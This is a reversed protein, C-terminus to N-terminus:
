QKFILSAEWYYNKGYFRRNFLEDYHIVRTGYGPEHIYLHHNNDYGHVVIFRGSFYSGYQLLVPHGQMLQAKIDNLSLTGTVHSDLGGIIWFLWSIDDISPNTYGFYDVSADVLDAQSYYIGYYDFLMETSAAWSWSEHYAPSFYIQLVLDDNRTEVRCGALLIVAFLLVIKKNLFNM